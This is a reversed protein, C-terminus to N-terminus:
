LLVELAALPFNNYQGGDRVYLREHQATEARWFKNWGNARFSFRYGVFFGVIGLPLQAREITPPRYLLTEEAFSIGLSASQLVKDNVRGVLTVVATPIEQVFRRYLWDFGIELRGPAEDPELEDGMASSWRFWEHPLTVSEVSPELSESVLEVGFGGFLSNPNPTEYEAEIEAFEYTPADDVFGMRGRGKARARLCYADGWQNNFPYVAGPPDLLAALHDAREDWPCKM